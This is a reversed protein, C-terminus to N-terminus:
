RLVPLEMGTSPIRNLPLDDWTGDDLLRGARKKFVGGWQKFFFPVALDECQDRIDRVWSSDMPRAGPGSEGGVIVWDIGSLDLNPLPGLLPEISLFKIQARTSRLEDIRHLYKSSEVSVGMWICPVWNLERDLKSLRSSRKTLIQYRHWPASKM